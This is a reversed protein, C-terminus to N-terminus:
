LMVTQTTPNAGCHRAIRRRLLSGRLPRSACLSRQGLRPRTAPFGPIARSRSAIVDANDTRFLM